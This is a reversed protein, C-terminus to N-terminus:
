GFPQRAGYPGPPMAAGVQAWIMQLTALRKKNFDDYALFGIIVAAPWMFVAALIFLVWGTSDVEAGITIRVGTGDPTPVTEVTVLQTINWAKAMGRGSWSAPGMPMLMAGTVQGVAAPLATPATGRPLVRYDSQEFM